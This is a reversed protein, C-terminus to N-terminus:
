AIAALAVLLALWVAFLAAMTALLWKRPRPPDAPPLPRRAHHSLNAVPARNFPIASSDVVPIRPRTGVSARGQEPLASVGM